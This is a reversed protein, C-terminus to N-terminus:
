HILNASLVLGPERYLLGSITSNHYIFQVEISPAAISKFHGEPTQYIATGFTGKRGFTMMKRMNLGVFFIDTEGEGYRYEGEFKAKEDEDLEAEAPQSEADGLSELYAITDEVKAKQEPSMEAEMRRGIRAHQLLSIGHPGGNGQIGPSAKIAARVVELEGLMAFTFLTPRAGKAILYQVIDRRGMHSAAGIASEWDCFSWDWTARALEPRKDVLEKVRALDSHSKGVVELVLEDGIAPFRYFLNDPNEQQIPKMIGPDAFILNPINVLLPGFVMSKLLARRNHQSKM